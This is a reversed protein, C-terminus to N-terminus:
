TCHNRAKAGWVFCFKGIPSILDDVELSRVCTADLYTLLDAM